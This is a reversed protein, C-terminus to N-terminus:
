HRIYSYTFYASNISEYTNKLPKLLAVVLVSEKEGIKRMVVDKNQYLYHDHDIWGFFGIANLPTIDGQISGLYLQTERNDSFIFHKSDPSWYYFVPWGYFSASGISQVNGNRLNGLYVGDPISQDTKGPYYSYTYVVWNGDPSVAFSDNGMPAPSLRTELAPSGNLPYKWITRPEPGNQPDQDEKIPPLIILNGSDQDWHPYVGEAKWAFPPVILSRILNGHIDFINFSDTIL